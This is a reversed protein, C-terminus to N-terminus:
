VVMHDLFTYVSHGKFAGLGQIKVSRITNSEANYYYVYFPKWPISSFTLVFENTRTVGVVRLIANEGGVMNKWFSPLVYVHESWVHKEEDELVWLSFSTCSGYIGGEKKYRLLGLKGNYNILPSGYRSFSLPIPDKVFRFKESRLDFIVIIRRRTATNVAPYYLVGDICVHNCRSYLTHPICCKTRTRRWSLTGSTGLTLVQHEEDTNRTMSLVKYQKKIPEYGFYCRMGIKERKKLHLLTVSQETSLNCIVWVKNKGFLQEGKILVLGRVYSCTEYSSGHCPTKMHYNAAFVSSKKHNQPQPSSYFFMHNRTGSAFLLRPHALFRTLVLDNFYPLRPITAWLKSVCCFRSVSKAPLRSCIEVALDLPIPEKDTISTKLPTNQKTVAVLDEESVNQQDTEM